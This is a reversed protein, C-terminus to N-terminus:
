EAPCIDAVLPVHDSGVDRAVHCRVPRWTGTTLIHDIRAGYRFNHLNVWRTYGLGCGVESFANRLNGWSERYIRSEVPLNFDGLVIDVQAQDRIWASLGASEQRRLQNLRKLSETRGVNVLTHRDLTESIGAQPSTLHVNCVTVPRGPVQVEACLGLLPPWQAPPELRYWTRVNQLPHPSALALQGERAVHWDEPFPLDADGSLEQLAVIDPAAQYLLQQFREWGMKGGHVNCTLLSVVPPEVTSLRQWPRPMQFGTVGFVFLLAAVVIPRLLRPSMVAALPLLVLLPLLGFWRPGFLLLSAAWWRDGAWYLVIWVILVTAVYAWTLCETLRLFGAELAGKWKRDIAEQWTAVRDPWSEPESVPAM